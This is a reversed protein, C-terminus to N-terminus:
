QASLTSIWKYVRPNRGWDPEGSGHLMHMVFHVKPWSDLLKWISHNSSLTKEQERIIISFALCALLEELRVTEKNALVSSSPHASVGPWSRM